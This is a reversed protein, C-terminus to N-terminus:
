RQTQHLSLGPEYFALYDNMPGPEVVLITGHRREIEALDPVFHHDFLSSTARESAPFKRVSDATFLPAPPADRTFRFFRLLPGDGKQARVPAIGIEPNKVTSITQPLYGDYNPNPITTQRTWGTWSWTPFGHRRTLLLDWAWCGEIADGFMKEPIDRYLPGISERFANAVGSFVKEVDYERSLRRIVYGHVLKRFVDIVEQRDTACPQRILSRTRHRHDDYFGSLMSGDASTPDELAVDARWTAEGCKFLFNNELFYVARNSCLEEQFTWGRQRWASGKLWPEPDELVEMLSINGIKYWSLQSEQPQDDLRRRLREDHAEQDRTQEPCPM